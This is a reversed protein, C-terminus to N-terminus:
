LGTGIINVGLAAGTQSQAAGLGPSAGAACIRHLGVKAPGPRVQSCGLGRSPGGHAARTRMGVVHPHAGARAAAAPRGRCVPLRRVHLGHPVSYIGAGSACGPSHRVGRPHRPATSSIGQFMLVTSNLWWASKCGDQKRFVQSQLSRTVPYRICDTLM